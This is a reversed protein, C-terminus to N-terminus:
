RVVVSLRVEIGETESPLVSLTLRGPEPLRPTAVSLREPYDMLHASVYADAASILVLFISFATWDEVQQGRADILGKWEQVAPDAEVVAEIDAPGTAGGLMVRERVARRAIEILRQAESRRRASKGIMWLSGAQAGFYLGGRGYSGTVVHGWGPILLSRLFVSRPTVTVVTASDAQQALAGGPLAVAVALIWAGAAGRAGGLPGSCRTRHVRGGPDERASSM